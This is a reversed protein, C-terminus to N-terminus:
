REEKWKISCGISPSQDASPRRGNAIDRMAEVLERRAGHPPGEDLRGRYQLRRDGDFGFFDPTCVADYARAVTQDEDHLYPFPFDHTRAFHKMNDFSDEPYASADNSCIAAFGIGEAMLMRADSVLRGIVAKVYPCHNCIFVIVTGKPGAIDDLSYTKGDTAKLRFGPAATDFATPSASVAM